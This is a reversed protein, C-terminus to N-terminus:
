ENNIGTGKENIDIDLDGKIACDINSNM